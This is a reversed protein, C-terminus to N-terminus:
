LLSNLETQLNIRAKSEYAIAFENTKFIKEMDLFHKLVKRRGPNYVLDPYISFEKRIQNSYLKYVEPTAGLISLDADTFLNTEFDAYTHKKTALILQECRIVLNEPVSIKTLEKRAFEASKEENNSKLTNYVVDHYAIAFVIVDWSAFKEKNDALETLLNDLHNLTHYHRNSSTYEKEIRELMTFNQISDTSYNELSKLFETKIM